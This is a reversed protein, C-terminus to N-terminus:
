IDPWTGPAPYIDPWDPSIMVVWGAQKGAQRSAQLCRWLLTALPFTYVLLKENVKVLEFRIKCILRGTPM